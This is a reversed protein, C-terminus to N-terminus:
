CVRNRSIKRDGTGFSVSKSSVYGSMNTGPALPGIVPEIQMIKLCVKGRCGAATADAAVATLAARTAIATAGVM